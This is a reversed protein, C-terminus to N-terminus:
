HTQRVLMGFLEELKSDPEKLLAGLENKDLICRREISGLPGTKTYLRMKKKPDRVEREKDKRKEEQGIRDM